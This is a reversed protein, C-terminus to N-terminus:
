PNKLQQRDLQQKATSFLYLMERAIQQSREDYKESEAPTDDFAKPDDYPIALRLSAGSVLPCAEDAQSCVMVACFDREPNPSESYVKSFCELPSAASDCRVQYRPNSTASPEPNAIEFGARRLAAVARPNFATAATGGSFTQVDTLGFHIAATHAWIQALHSRRSNHTCIFTLQAPQNSKIRNCVYGAIQALQEKRDQPIRDFEAARAEVYKQLPPNLPVPNDAGLVCTFASIFVIALLVQPSTSPPKTSHPM